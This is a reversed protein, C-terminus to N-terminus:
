GRSQVSAVVRGVVKLRNQEVTYQAGNGSTVMSYDRADELSPESRVLMLGCSGSVAYLGLRCRMDKSAADVLLYDDAQVGFLPASVDLRILALDSGANFEALFRRPLVAYDAGEVNEDTPDIPVRQGPQTVSAHRVGFALYAPDENLVSALDAIVDLAVPKNNEYLAISARSKRRHEPMAKSLDEQRMGQERRAREIRGGVTSIDIQELEAAEEAMRSM